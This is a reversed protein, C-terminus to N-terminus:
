QDLWWSGLAPMSLQGVGERDGEYGHAYLVLGGNWNSPVQLSYRGGSYEAATISVPEPRPTFTPAVTPAVAAESRNLGPSSLRCGAFTLATALGWALFLAVSWRRVPHGRRSM